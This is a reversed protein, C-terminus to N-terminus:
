QRSYWYSGDPNTVKRYKLFPEAERWRHHTFPRPPVERSVLDRHPLRKGEMGSVLLKVKDLSDMERLNNRGVMEWLYRPLYKPSVHRYTRYTGKIQSNFSEARNTTADGRVYEGKEHNVVEHRAAWRFGSYSPYEDTFLTGGRRLHKKVFASLTEETKELIVEAAVRGTERDYM